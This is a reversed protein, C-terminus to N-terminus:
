IEMHDLCAKCEIAVTCVKPFCFIYKIITQNHFDKAKACQFRATDSIPPSTVRQNDLARQLTFWRGVWREQFQSAGVSRCDGQEIPLTICLNCIYFDSIYQLDSSYLANATVEFFDAIIHKQLVTTDLILSRSQYFLAHSDIFIIVLLKLWLLM